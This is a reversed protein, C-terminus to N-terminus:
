TNVRFTLRNLSSAQATNKVQEMDHKVMQPDIGKPAQQMLIKATEVTLRVASSFILGAIAVGVAPDAYFRLPFNAFWMICGAIIVGINNLADSLVHLRVGAMGTDTHLRKRAPACQESNHMHM